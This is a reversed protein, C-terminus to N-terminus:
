RVPTLAARARRGRRRMVVTLALLGIFGGAWVVGMALFGVRFDGWTYTDGGAARDLVLGVGQFAVMAASFGGMNALGTGTATVERDVNERVVDFATNAVPALGAVVVALVVVAALGRPTGPALFVVWAVASALTCVLAVVPRRRGARLSVMGHLPGAAVSVVTNVVLVASAQGPSLGMGLTMLPVGWVLTFSLQGMLSGHIFFGTWCAPERVVRRLTVGLSRLSEGPSPRVVRRYRAAAGPVPGPGDRVILWVLGAVLVAAGAVSLFAPTWGTVGLMMMFPVASIFQGVYGLSGTFQTFLPAQRPPIWAPLLRMVSLFATADAVGIIVRALVALPYNGVLALVAQGVAMALAGAVLVRRPGFRDIALGTPIQALAYVGVQVSTFVALRSADIGFHDLAEVGAVGFSTRGTIALIYAVVATSWVAVAVTTLRPGPVSPPPSSPLSPPASPAPPTSGSPSPGDPSRDPHAPPPTM